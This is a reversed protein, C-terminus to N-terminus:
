RNFHNDIVTTATARIDATAAAMPSRLLPIRRRHRDRRIPSRLRATKLVRRKWTNSHNRSRVTKWGPNLSHSRVTRWARSLSRNRCREIRWTPNHSHSRTIKTGLSPLTRSRNCRALRWVRLRQAPSRNRSRM